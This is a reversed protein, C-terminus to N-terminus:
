LDVLRFGGEHGVIRREIETSRLVYAHDRTFRVADRMEKFEVESYDHYEDYHTTYRVVVMSKLAM